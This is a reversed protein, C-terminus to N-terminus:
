SGALPTGIIGIALEAWVIALGIFIAVCAAIRYEFKTILRLAIEIAIGAGFLMIAAAIFDLPGWPFRALLPILLLIGATALIGILRKNQTTMIEAKRAGSRNRSGKSLHPSSVRAM